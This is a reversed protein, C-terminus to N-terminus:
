HRKTNKSDRNAPSVKLHLATSLGCFGAGIVAVDAKADGNLIEFDDTRKSTVGWLSTDIHCSSNYWADTHTM